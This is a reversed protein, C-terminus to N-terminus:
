EPYYTKALKEIGQADASLAPNATGFKLKCVEVLFCRAFM